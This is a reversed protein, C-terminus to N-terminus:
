KRSKIKKAPVGGYVSYAECDKTVVSGAGIIVGDNITVGKVIVSKAGVWVDNGIKVPAKVYGQKQMPIDTRDNRHDQTYIHVEPGIDSNDGIYVHENLHIQMHKGLSSRNGVHLLKGRGFDVGVRCNLGWGCEAFIQKCLFARIVRGVQKAMFREPIHKAFLYYVLLAINRRLEKM